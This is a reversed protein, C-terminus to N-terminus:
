EVKIGTLRILDAWKVTEKSMFDAFAEPTGAISELSNTYLFRQKFDPDSFIRQIEGNIKSVVDRPTGAPAVLGLWVVAEFGPLGSEWITPVDPLQRLRSRGGTALLKVRGEKAASSAANPTTFMMSIHGAIVDTFAPAAGRYHVPLIEVGTMQQLMALYLHANSGAGFTGLTLEGPKSKALAILEQFTNAPVSSHVILAQDLRALAAVPAFDKVPDYPLKPYLSQNIVFTAEASVMLTYGDPPAKAVYAAGIQSNAGPKNEVIVPQGWAASLQQAVTRAVLDVIAGPPNPAVITVPRSPYQQARLSDPLLAFVLLACAFRLM